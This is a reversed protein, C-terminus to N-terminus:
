ASKRLGLTEAIEVVNKRAVLYTLAPSFHLWFAFPLRVLRNLSLHYSKEGRLGKRLQSEDIAMLSAAEKVTIRAADLSTLVADGLVQELQSLDMAACKLGCFWTVMLVIQGLSYSGHIVSM